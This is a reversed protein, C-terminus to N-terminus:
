TNRDGGNYEFSSCVSEDEMESDWDASPFDDEEDKCYWYGNENQCARNCYNCAYDLEEATWAM